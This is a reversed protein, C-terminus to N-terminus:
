FTNTRKSEGNGLYWRKFYQGQCQLDLDRLVVQAIIGNSPLYWRRYFDFDTNKRQREGIGLYRVNRINSWAFKHWPWWTYYECLLSVPHQSLAFQALRIQRFVIPEKESESQRRCWAPASSLRTDDPLGVVGVLIPRNSAQIKTCIKPM